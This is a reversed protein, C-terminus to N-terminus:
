LKGLGELATTEAFPTPWLKMAMGEVHQTPRILQGTLTAADTDAHRRVSLVVMKSVKRLICCVRLVQEHSGVDSHCIVTRGLLPSGLIILQHVQVQFRGKMMTLTLPVHPCVVTRHVNNNSFKNACYYTVM